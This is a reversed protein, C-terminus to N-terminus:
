GVLVRYFVARIVSLVSPFSLVTTIDAFNFTVFFLVTIKTLGRIVCAKIASVVTRVAAAFGIKTDLTSLSMAQYTVQSKQM